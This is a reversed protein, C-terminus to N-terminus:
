SNNRIQIPIGGPWKGALDHECTREAAQLTAANENRPVTFQPGGGSFTPDAFGPVGNARICAAWRLFAKQQTTSVAQVATGPPALSRCARRASNAQPSHLGLGGLSVQGNPGQVPDPFNPVGHSRMCKSYALTQALSDQNGGSGSGSSCASALLGAALLGAAIVGGQRFREAWRQHVVATRIDRRM